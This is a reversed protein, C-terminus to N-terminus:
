KRIDELNKELERIEDRLKWIKTLCEQEKNHMENHGLMFRSKRDIREYKIKVPKLVVSVFMKVLGDMSTIDGVSKYESKPINKFIYSYMLPSIFSDDYKKYYHLYDGLWCDLLCYDNEVFKMVKRITEICMNDTLLYCEGDGNKTKNLLRRHIEDYIFWPRDDWEQKDQVANMIYETFDYIIHKRMEQIIPNDYKKDVVHSGNDWYVLDDFNGLHFFNYQFTKDRSKWDKDEM